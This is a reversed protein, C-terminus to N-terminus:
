PLSRASLLLELGNSAAYNRGGFQLAGAPDPVFWQAFLRLGELGANGPITVSAEAHGQADVVSGQLTTVAPGVLIECGNRLGGEGQRSFWLVPAAGPLAADLTVTVTTGLVPAETLGIAPTGNSGPCGQGRTWSDAFPIQRFFRLGDCTGQLLDLFGDEDLVLWLFDHNGQTHWDLTLGNYPDSLGDTGSLSQQNLLLAFRRNCGAVDTDVDAVGVDLFGNNDVDASHVNGGFQATRSSGTVDVRQVQISGDPNTALNILQYDQHDSEIYLDPRGDNNYDAVDLMYVEEFPLLQRSMFHGTGDNWLIPLIKPGFLTSIKVIDLYGDLNFDAMATGTGFASIEFGPALRTATEDTFHGTGDNILLRDELDNDYDVFFLDVFGDGTVDGVSVACFQPGPNFAPQYWNPEEAFGQWVGGAAGLNMMLRPPDDFTTVVILDTWGDNDVDACAVDRSDDPIAFDPCYAATSEVLVGDENMLLVNTRAGPVSFPVKRVVVVDLDGDLDFDAAALDKEEPDATTVQPPGSIRVATEEVFDVWQAPLPSAAGSALLLVSPLLSSLSSRM